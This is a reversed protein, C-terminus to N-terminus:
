HVYKTAEGSTWPHYSRCFEIRDGLPPHDYAYWVYFRNPTPYSFGKEGLKEFASSAVEGADGVLAHTVELGYRDAEHEQYRSFASGVPTLVINLLSAALLLAPLSGWENLSAVGWGSGWRAIMARAMWGGVCCAFLIILCSFLLGKYIHRLVYHGMEHGFIFQTEENTLEKATNDWVVVRKTAGLGTVYANYTTVKDSAKMEFIREHPIAVGGRHMVEDIKALLQPHDQALPQYQNFLPEILVPSAFVVIFTVPLSCLWAWVPWRKPARRILAYLGWLILACIVTSISTSVAWDRAWSGWSQVSLGYARQLHQAYIDVPESLLALLLIIASFYALAQLWRWRLRQALWGDIHPAIKLRLCFFLILLDLITSGILMVVRTRYLSEAKQMQQANLTYATVPRLQPANQAIPTPAASARSATSPSIPPQSVGDAASAFSVLALTLLIFLFLKNRIAPM